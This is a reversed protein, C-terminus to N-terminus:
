KSSENVIEGMLDYELCDTIKVKVFSNLKLQEDSEIYLIGDIDPCDMYTRGIYINSDYNNEVLATYMHDIKSKNINFSINQQLQMIKNKRMKKIELPVQNTFKDAATDEEKSYTFVGLKDFEINKVFDYLEDFQEETEGPFGVILTTRIIIEPIENRLKNILDIIKRKCTTRNMRDLIDDNIHQIPIDVYKLVKECSKIAYILESTFNDPYLYLLRIWKLGEINNLEKLLQPLKYEGYIDIGYDTTNQAILIIEKAGNKVLCKVENVINEISRSRYRGRLKPIICYTCYNNCGESIKVYVTTKNNLRKVNELYPCNINGTKMIKKNKKDLNFIIKAIKDINGTGIVADVEDIEDLLEKPYREALCGTLILYKCNAEHKYQTMEWITKITEEKASNIFGCTNVIIIEADYLKEVLDFENEILISKMLESDIDNKACGLTIIAVNRKKM